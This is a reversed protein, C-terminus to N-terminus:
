RRLRQSEDRVTAAVRHWYAFDPSDATHSNANAMATRWAMDQGFQAILLAGMVHVDDDPNVRTLSGAVLRRQAQAPTWRSPVPDPERRPVESSVVDGDGVPAHGVSAAADGLDPARDIVASVAREAGAGTARPAQASWGASTQRWTAIITRWRPHVTVIAAVLVAGVLVVSIGAAVDSYEPHRHKRPPLRRGYEDCFRATFRAKHGHPCDM